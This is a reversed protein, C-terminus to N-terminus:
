IWRRVGARYREFDHGFATRLREEEPRIFRRDLLWALVPVALLALWSGLALGAGALLLLDGLYIPNRSVRFVGTRVLASPMLHPLPTTRRRRMELVAALMLALGTAILLGGLPRGWGPWAVPWLAAQAWGLAICLALWTPPIDIWKAM